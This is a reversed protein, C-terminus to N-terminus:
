RVSEKQVEATLREVAEDVTMPLDKWQMELGLRAIQPPQVYTKALIEPQSFVEKPTGDLLIEGGGMVIIRKTFEAVLDMSHTVVIVTIGNERNLQQLLRMIERAKEPDQGTTPEDVILIKPDMVLIGAFAVRQRDGKGLRFPHLDAYKTLELREMYERAKKEAAEPPTHLNLLGFMIDELVSDKFVQQDPNQFVYGVVTPRVRPHMKAVEMGGIKITGETPKLYGSILKSLTTKGSGNHGILAVMEGHRITFDVRKIAELKKPPPYVFRMNRVILEADQLNLAEM